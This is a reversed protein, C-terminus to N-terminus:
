PLWSGRNLRNHGVKETVDTMEAIPQVEIDRLEIPYGM